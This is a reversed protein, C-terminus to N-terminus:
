KSLYRPQPSFHVRPQRPAEAATELTEVVQQMTPRSKPNKELCNLALEAVKAASKSGYNGELRPDIINKLKRRDSLRPKMWVVLYQQEAPRKKDIVRLGTLMELLVVGFGYVDSKETLHGTMVYEPAAYGYTGMVRTSVHTRDAFPGTKALGFDSIKAHYLEDLLINSSKFDRFIVKIDSSHLFALGRAAGILINLRTDWPLPQRSSQFLHNELSGKQMLEYVLFLENHDWGYGLLKVLNPHYIRGLFQVESQWEQFGQMSEHNLKKIAVVISGKGEKTSSMEHIWGKYVKGFGGEGLVSDSRFNRTAAKLEEFSFIRLTPTSSMGGIKKNTIPNGGLTTNITRRSLPASLSIGVMDGKNSPKRTKRFADRPWLKRSIRYIMSKKGDKRGSNIMTSNSQERQLSPYTQVSFSSAMPRPSVSLITRDNDACPMAASVNRIEDNEKEHLTDAGNINEQQSEDASSIIDEFSTREEPALSEAKEQLQLALNLKIVLLAATPRKKPEDHLCREAVKVFTKLSDPSIEGRLSPTVIDDVRGKSINDIAWTTLSRKDEENLPEVAPRGCLVELLVVGFSYIDSEKTLKRTTFFNPDIYGFTGKLNTSDQSQSESFSGTKALGFDSVKAVFNEDLLINSAKVDRHMIGHGTHLYDLARIAGICIKLRQKWSLLYFDKNKRALKYLHDALTGNPMYEYVLIMEKQETCYGILSVLNVHRLESLTEVEMWFQLEGQKSDPKARKIAVIERGNDMFGKYVKGFGGKGVIFGSYFNDTASQIEALSFTRCLQKARASPQNEEDIETMDAGRMKLLLHFVINLLCIVTFVVTAIANVRGLLSHLLTQSQTDRTPNPPLPNPSALSRDHNSLKFVEFGELPRGHQSNLSISITRKGERKHGEVMVMYNYWLMSKNGGQQLMDASTLAIMNEILLTFDMKLGAECLHIRILYRFGVDVLVRWSLDGAQKKLNSAWIGFMGGVDDLVSGWKMNQHYVRELASTNDVYIVSKQGLVHIGSDGGHCYSITPPVSIIEIGNIFAYNYKSQSTEPSFVINLPQNQQIILCFEKVLINLSLARATISASFNALLTFPGAEVTFFDHFSEFGYYPVPNFHLRIFKQGPTLHFSYSFQSRSIRATSYPVPDVAAILEGTVTSAKSSGKPAADSDGGWKRARGSLAAAGGCNISIHDPHHAAATFTFLFCLILIM